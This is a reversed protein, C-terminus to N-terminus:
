LPHKVKTLVLIKSDLKNVSNHFAELKADATKVSTQLALDCASGHLVSPLHPGYASSYFGM